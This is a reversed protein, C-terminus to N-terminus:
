FVFEILGESLIIENQQESKAIFQVIRNKNNFEIILTEGPFFPKTFKCFIKRVAVAKQISFHLLLKKVTLGLTCLGHSINKEFGKSRAFEIDIHIPNYDGTLCYLFPQFESTKMIISDTFVNQKEYKIRQNM